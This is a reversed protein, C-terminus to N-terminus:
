DEAGPNTDENDDGTQDPATADDNDNDGGDNTEQQNDEEEENEEEEEEREEEDDQLLENAEATKDTEVQDDINQLQVSGTRQTSTAGMLQNGDDIGINMTMADTKMQQLNADAASTLIGDSLQNDIGGRDELEKMRIKHCLVAACVIAVGLLIICIIIAALLGPHTEDIIKIETNVEECIDGQYGEDCLCRITGNPYSDEGNGYPDAECIGHTACVAYMDLNM